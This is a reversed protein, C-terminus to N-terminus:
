TKLKLLSELINSQLKDESVDDDSDNADRDFYHADKQENGTVFSLLGGFPSAKNLSANSSLSSHSGLKGRTGMEDSSSGAENPIQTYLHRNVRGSPEFGLGLGLGSGSGSRLGSDEEATASPHFYHGPEAQMHSRITFLSAAVGMVALAGFFAMVCSIDFGAYGVALIVALSGLKGSAAALGNATSRVGSGASFLLSPALFTSPAPGLGVLLYTLMYVAITVPWMSKPLTVKMISVIFFAVASLAFGHLQLALASFRRLAAVSLIGGIWFLTASGLGIAALISITFHYNDDDYTNKDYLLSDLFLM